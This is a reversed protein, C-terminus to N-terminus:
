RPHAVDFQFAKSYKYSFVRIKHSVINITVQSPLFQGPKISGLSGDHDSFSGTSVLGPDM